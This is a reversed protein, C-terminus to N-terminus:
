RSFEILASLANLDHHPIPNSQDSLWDPNFSMPANQPFPNLGAYKMRGGQSRVVGLNRDIMQEQDQPFFECRSGKLEKLVYSMTTFAYVEPSFRKDNQEYLAQKLQEGFQDQIPIGLDQNGIQCSNLFIKKPCRRILPDRLVQMQNKEDWIKLGENTFLARWIQEAFYGGITQFFALGHGLIVVEDPFSLSPMSGKIVKCHKQEINLVIFSSNSTLTEQKLWEGYNGREVAQDIQILLKGGGSNHQQARNLEPPKWNKFEPSQGPFCSALRSQSFLSPNFPSNELPGMIFGISRQISSLHMLFRDIFPILSPFSGSNPLQQPNSTAQSYLSFLTNYLSQLLQDKAQSKQWDLWFPSNVNIIAHAIAPKTKLDQFGNGINGIAQLADLLIKRTHSQSYQKVLSELRQMTSKTHFISEITQDSLSKLLEHNYILQFTAAALPSSGVEGVPSKSKLRPIAEISM